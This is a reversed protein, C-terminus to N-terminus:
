RGPKIVTAMRKPTTALTMSMLASGAYVIAVALELIATFLEDSHTGTVSEIRETPNRPPETGTEPSEPSCIRRTPM